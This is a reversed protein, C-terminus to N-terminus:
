LKLKEKATKLCEVIEGVTKLDPVHDASEGAALLALSALDRQLGNPSLEERSLAASEPPIPRPEFVPWSDPSRPTTLNFVSSLDPANKDRNTLGPLDWKKCMSRIVSTHEFHDNIVTGEEMYASVLITPVRVGARDFMFGLEGEPELTKPTVAQPPAVHDYCGGHEDFTIMFATNLANNGTDSTSNRIANYVDNILIEGALVSSPLVIDDILSAPPHMDNHELVMGPEIFAYSPLTGNAADEYFSDMHAFHTRAYPALAEFSIVLAASLINMEDYYVKWSLGKREADSIQNLITPASREFWYEHPSNNVLGCSTGAHFFARNCWTQSPVSCFWHDFVGFQKALGSTVPIADPPFCNMIVSYEERTPLRGREVYFAGVYDTVFGSMTPSGTGSAPINYPPAMYVYTDAIQEPTSPIKKSWNSEPVFAGFLQTNIHPYEEGPDPNPSDMVTGPSVPVDPHGPGLIHEPAPNSLSKGAVGDFSQGRPVEGPQYLYGLMNDFSRNEMMLVVLHDFSDLGPKASDM